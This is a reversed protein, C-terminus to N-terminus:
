APVLLQRHNTVDRSLPLFASFLARDKLRNSESGPVAAAFVSPGDRRRKVDRDIPTALDGDGTLLLLGDAERVTSVLAGAEFAIDLDANARLEEGHHTWVMERIVEWGGDTWAKTTHRLDARTTLVAAAALAVAESQVWDHLLAPDIAFGFLSKASVDLNDVDAIVILNLGSPPNLKM